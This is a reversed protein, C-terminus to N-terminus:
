VSKPFYEQDSQILVAVGQECFCIAAAGIVDTNGNVLSSVSTKDDGSFCEGVRQTKGVNQQHTGIFLAVQKPGFRKGCNIPISACANALRLVSVIEKGASCCCESLAI